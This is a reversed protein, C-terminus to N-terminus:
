TVIENHYKQLSIDLPEPKENLLYNAKDTNLSSDFPMDRSFDFDSRKAKILNEDSLHFQELLKLAFDYRSIKEPGALHIIGNYHLEMTNILMKSFNEIYTPTMFQDSIIEFKEKIGNLIMDPLTSRLPNKGYIMSTRVLCFDHSYKQLNKEGEARTQGYYNVPSLPDNEKYNGHEGDFVHDSSLSMLYADYENCLKSILIVSKANINMVYEKNKKCFDLNKYIGCLNIVVDPQSTEFIKKLSDVNLLDLELGDSIPNNHFTKFVKYNKDLFKCLNNGILGSSGLILINSNDHM